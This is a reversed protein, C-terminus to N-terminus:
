GNDNVSVTVATDPVDLAMLKQKRTLWKREIEMMKADEVAYDPALELALGYQLAMGWELPLDPATAAASATVTQQYLIHIWGDVDPVPYLFGMNASNIYIGQPTGTQSKGQIAEWEAHSYLRLPTEAVNTPEMILFSTGDYVLELIQNTIIDGAALAVNGERVIPKAGLGSVNLTAAGTNTAHIQVITKSGSALTFASDTATYATTSTATLHSTLTGTLRMFSIVPSKNYRSLAALNITPINLPAKFMRRMTKSWLDADKVLETLIADLLLVARTNEAATLTEGPFHAGCISMAGSIIDERLM